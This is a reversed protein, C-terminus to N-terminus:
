FPIEGGSGAYEKKAKKAKVEGSPLALQQQEEKPEEAEKMIKENGLFETAAALAKTLEPLLEVALTIGKPSPQWDTGQGRSADFWVRLNLFGRSQYTTIEVIVKELTNKTFEYILM